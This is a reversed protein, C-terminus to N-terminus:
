QRVGVDARTAPVGGRGEFLNERGFTRGVARRSSWNPTVAGDGLALIELSGPVGGFHSHGLGPRATKPHYLRARLARKTSRTPGPGQRRRTPRRATWSRPRAGGYHLRHQADAGQEERDVGVREEHQHPGEQTVRWDGDVPSRSGARGTRASKNRRQLLVATSLKMLASGRNSRATALKKETSFPTLVTFSVKVGISLAGYTTISCCEERRRTGVTRPGAGQASGGAPRERGNRDGRSPPHSSLTSPRPIQVHFASRCM